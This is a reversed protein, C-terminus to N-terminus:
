SVKLLFIHTNYMCVYLKQDDKIILDCIDSYIISYVVKFTSFLQIKM